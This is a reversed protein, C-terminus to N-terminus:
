VSRDTRVVQVKSFPVRHDLALDHVVISLRDAKPQITTLEPPAMVVANGRCLTYAIARFM